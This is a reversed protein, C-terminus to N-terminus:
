AAQGDPEIARLYATELTEAEFRERCGQPTGDFVLRGEHLIALQECLQEVDELQHTSMLLMGGQARHAQLLELVRVRAHPDLGSMPEDLVLLQKGSLFCGLLGLKQAMGKSYKRVPRGLVEPDLDLRGCLDLVEQESAPRTYMAALTNLYEWGLLYSPPLFREPLYAIQQRASPRESSQGFLTISGADLRTLDLLSRILTSKGAGNAGVLALSQGMPLELDVGRM